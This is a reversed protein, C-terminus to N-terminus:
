RVLPRSLRRVIWLSDVPPQLLAVRAAVALTLLLQLAEGLAAGMVAGLRETM